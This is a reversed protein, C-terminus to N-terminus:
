HVLAPDLSQERRPGSIRGSSRGSISWFLFLARSLPSPCHGPQAPASTSGRRGSPWLRSTFASVEVPSPRGHYVPRAGPPRCFSREEFRSLNGVEAPAIQWNGLPGLQIPPKAAAAQEAEQSQEPGPERRRPAFALRRGVAAPLIAGPV